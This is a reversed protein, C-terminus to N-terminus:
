GWKKELVASMFDPCKAKILEVLKEVIMPINLLNALLDKNKEQDQTIGKETNIKLLKEVNMYLNEQFCLFIEISILPLKSMNLVEFCEFQQKILINWFVNVGRTVEVDEGVNQFFQEMTMQRTINEFNQQNEQDDMELM